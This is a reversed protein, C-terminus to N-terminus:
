IAYEKITKKYHSQFKRENLYKVVERYAHFKGLRKSKPDYNICKVFEDNFYINIFYGIKNLEDEIRIKM